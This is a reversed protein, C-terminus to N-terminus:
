GHGAEQLPLWVEVELTEAAPSGIVHGQVIKAQKCSVKIKDVNNTRQYSVRYRRGRFHRTCSAQQWHSPLKPHICLGEPGGKLGFLEEVVMLYYWAVTGTNFLHSSRGAQEPFQHYAGRFYNPLFTPLQRRTQCDDLDPLMTRLVNFAENNRGLQYLSYAYFAAAHNYVSGNEATGPFKQTLRGIDERMRTYAPALMMPGFPSDLQENVARLMAQQQYPQSADCLIAWSQANLYIRGEPDEAIGFTKGQDTIGRAYWNSRWFYTNIRDNLRLHLDHWHAGLAQNGSQECISVWLKCAYSTAMTLWASVGIGQKGVMNMPDCWDGQHILSLGRSDLNNELHQLGRLIHDSVTAQSGDEFPCTLALLQFDATERLYAALFVLIWVNHDSHPIQNIYKLTADPHLLIGDPMAGNAAQQSLAKLFATKAREPALFLTGLNDQLYNRTQPDTTLRNVESHYRVQRPLWHNTFMAFLSDPCDIGSLAQQSAQGPLTTTYEDSLYRQRLTLIDRQDQAPGFLWRCRQSDGPALSLAHQLVATPVEYRAETKPLTPSQLADPAHLGGQGEFPLQACTWSKPSADTLLFTLDKLHRVKQYDDTKQYPTVCRAVIGQAQEDYSASQYMWSMYGISFYPFLDLNRERASGNRVTLEWIEVPDDDALQLTLTFALENLEIRWELRDLHHVFAFRDFGRRVPEYPLSFLAQGSERLYFFRGPHHAYYAHEPQMFTQAELGPGRSYKSPEPQMHQAMAYGRCNMQIMMQPNWLFGCADPLRVPDNLTLRPPQEAYEFVPFTM